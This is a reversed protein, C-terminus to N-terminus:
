ELLSANSNGPRKSLRQLYWVYFLALGFAFLIQVTTSMESLITMRGLRYILVPMGIVWVFGPVPVDKGQSILLLTFFGAVACEFAILIDLAIELTM